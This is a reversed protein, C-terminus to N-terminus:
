SASHSETDPSLDAERGVGGNHNAFVAVAGDEAELRGDSLVKLCSGSAIGYGVAGDGILMIAEKLEAWDDGEAHTDCVFPVIGLCAFLEATSDDDPDAWRVWERAMIISGASIGFFPKGRIATDQLFTVMGKTRLVNMGVEVDGGSIFVADAKDIAARARDLDADRAAIRIRQFRCKTKFKILNSLVFYVLWNDRFSAVGVYAILPKERGMSRVVRAATSITRGM